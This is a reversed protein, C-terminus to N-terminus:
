SWKPEMKSDNQSWKVEKPPDQPCPAFRGGFEEIKPDRQAGGPAWKGDFIVVKEMFFHM